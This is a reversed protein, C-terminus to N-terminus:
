GPESGDMIINHFPWEVGVETGEFSHVIHTGCIIKRVNNDGFKEFSNDLFISMVEGKDAQPVLIQFV